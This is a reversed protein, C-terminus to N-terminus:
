EQKKIRTGVRTGFRTRVRTGVRTGVALLLRDTLSFYTSM